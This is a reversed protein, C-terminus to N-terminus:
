SMSLTGRVEWLVGFNIRYRDLLGPLLAAINEEWVSSLYIDLAKAWM